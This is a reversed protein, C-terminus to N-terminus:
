RSIRIPRVDVQMSADGTRNRALWRQFDVFELERPLIREGGDGQGDAAKVFQRMSYIIYVYNTEQQRDTFLTYEDVESPEFYPLAKDKSFLIYDTNAEVKVYGTESSGYPLLCYATQRSDVLYVAIYGDSPSSFSVYFDDNNKFDCDEYKADTGNRLIRAKFLVPESDAKKAKGVVRCRVVLSNHQYSIDFEPEGVTEVWEGKVFSNGLSTYDVFSRDNNNYVITSSYDSVLTGFEDALAKTMARQLATHRAQDLDVNDPVIYTYDGQVRKLQQAHLSLSLSLMCMISIIRRM